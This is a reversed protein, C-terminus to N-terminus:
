MLAWKTLFRRAISMNIANDEAVLVKVGNFTALHKVKKKTLIINGTENIDAEIYFPFYKRKRRRKGADSRWSFISSKKTISLGFRHRWIEQNYKCGRQTFSEFIEQQKNTPIGIRYGEGYITDHSESENFINKEGGFYNWGPTHIQNCQIVPQQIGPEIKNEDTLFEMDLSDIDTTFKLGKAHAQAAFQV